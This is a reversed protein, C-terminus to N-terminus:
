KSAVLSGPARGMRTEMSKWDKGTVPGYGSVFRVGAGKEGEFGTENVQVPFRLNGMGFPRCGLYVNEWSGAPVEYAEHFLGLFPLKKAGEKEWFMWGKWHAEEHAFRHLGELDKWYSIWVTTLGKDDGGRYGFIESPDEQAALAPTNGLYGYKAKGAEAQKWMAAFHMGVEKVGPTLRGLPSSNHSGLIFVVISSGSRPATLTGDAAPFQSSTKVHIVGEDLENPLRGSAILFALIIRYLLIFLPPLLAIRKPLLVLTLGQLTAGLLLWSSIRFDASRAMGLIRKAKYLRSLAM